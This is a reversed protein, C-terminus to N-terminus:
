WRYDFFVQIKNKFQHNIDKDGNFMRLMGFFRSLNDGDDLDQTQLIFNNLIGLFCGMIYSFIAVGFLLIFSCFLREFDNQPVYDGFGVTTLSTFAIYIAMIIIHMM